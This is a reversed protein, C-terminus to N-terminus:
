LFPQYKLDTAIDYSFGCFAGSIRGRLVRGPLDRSYLTGGRTAIRPHVGRCTTRFLAEVKLRVNEPGYRSPVMLEAQRSKRCICEPVHM